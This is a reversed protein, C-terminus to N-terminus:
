TNYVRQLKIPAPNNSDRLSQPRRPTNDLAEKKNQEEIKPLTKELETSAPKSYVEVLKMLTALIQKNVGLNDVHVSHSAVLTDTVVSIESVPPSYTTQNTSTLMFGPQIVTEAQSVQSSNKTKIAKDIEAESAFQKPVNTIQKALPAIPTLTAATQEPETTTQTPTPVSAKDASDNARLNVTSGIGLHTRTDTSPRTPTAPAFVATQPVAMSATAAPKSTDATMTTPAKGGLKGVINAMHRDTSSLLEGLTLWSGDKKTFFPKNSNNINSSNLFTNVKLDLKQDNINKLLRSSSDWDLMHLIYDLGPTKKLGPALKDIRKQTEAAYAQGFAFNIKNDHLNIEHPKKTTDIGYSELLAKQNRMLGAVNSPLIQYLGIPRNYMIDARKESDNKENLNGLSSEIFAKAKLSSADLGHKESEEDILAAVAKQKDNLVFQKSSDNEYRASAESVGPKTINGGLTISSDQYGINAKSQEAGKDIQDVVKKSDIINNRVTSETSSDMFRSAVKWSRTAPKMEYPTISALGGGGKGLGNRIENIIAAPNNTAMDRVKDVNNDSMLPQIGAPEIHWPEGQIPRTFGYKRMLGLKDLKNADASSIDAALGVMHLSRKAGKLETNEAETRFGNNMNIKKGTYQYYESVMAFLNKQFEPNLRTINTEPRGAKLIIATRGQNQLNPDNRFEYGDGYAKNVSYNGSDKESKDTDVPAIEEERDDGVGGSTANYENRYKQSFAIEDLRRKAQEQKERLRDKVSQQEQQRKNLSANKIDELSKSQQNLKYYDVLDFKGLAKKKRLSNITYEILDKVHELTNECSPKTPFPSSTATYPGNAYTMDRLISQMVADEAKFVDDPNDIKNKLLLTHFNLFFPKFRNVFWSIFNNVESDSNQNIEMLTLLDKTPLNTFTVTNNKTEIFNNNVIWQELKHLKDFYQNDQGNEVFGYQAFRVKWLDSDKKWKKYGYVAGGIVAAGVLAPVLIPSSVIGGIISATGSVLGTLSVGTLAGLIARTVGITKAVKSGGSAAALAGRAAGAAGSMRSFIGAGAKGTTKGIGILSKGAGFIGGMIKSGAYMGLATKAADWKWDSAEEASANPNLAQMAGGMSGFATAAIAAAPAIFKIARFLVGLSGFGGLLGSFFGGEDKSEKEEKKGLGFITSLLGRKKQADRIEKSQKSMDEANGDRDGDGDKDNFAAKKGFLNLGPIHSLFRGLLGGDKKKKNEEKLVKAEEKIKEKLEEDVSKVANDFINIKKKNLELQSKKREELEKNYLGNISQDLGLAKRQDPLLEVWDDDKPKEKLSKIGSIAEAEKKLDDIDKEIEQKRRRITEAKDVTPETTSKINDVNVTAASDKKITEEAKPSEEPPTASEIKPKGLGKLWDSARSFVGKVARTTHLDSLAKGAVKGHEKKKDHEEKHKKFLKLINKYSGSIWMGKKAGLKIAHEPAVYWLNKDDKSRLIVIFFGDKDGHERSSTGTSELSTSDVNDKQELNYTDTRLEPKGQTFEEILGKTGDILSEGLNVGKVARGRMRKYQRRFFGDGEKIENDTNKFAELQEASFEKVKALKEEYQKKALAKGEDSLNKYWETNTVKNEWADRIGRSVEEVNLAHKADKAEMNKEDVDSRMPIKRNGKRLLDRIDLLVNYIPRSGMGGGLGIGMDGLARSIVGAGAHITKGLFNDGKWTNKLFDATHEGLNSAVDWARGVGKKAYAWAKSGYLEVKKRSEDYLRGLYDGATIRINSGKVIITGKLDSLKKVVEQTDERIYQGAQLLEKYFVVEGKENLLNTRFKIANVVKDKAKTAKDAMWNLATPIKNTVLDQTIDKAKGIGEWALEGAKKIGKKLPEKLSEALKIANNYLPIVVNDKAVRLTTITGKVAASGAMTTLDFTGGVVQKISKAFGKGSDKFDIGAQNLSVASATSTVRGQHAMVALLKNSRKINALIAENINVSKGDEKINVSVEKNLLESLTINTKNVGGIIAENYAFLNRFLLNFAGDFKENLEKIAAMNLGNASVLDVTTGGPALKNGGVKQMDQAMPGVHDVNPDNASRNPNYNWIKSELSSVTNLPSSGNPSTNSANYGTFKNGYDISRINRKKGVDSETIGLDNIQKTLEDLTISNKGTNKLISNVQQKQDETVSPHNIKKVLEKIRTKDKKDKKVLKDQITEVNHKLPTTSSTTTTPTVLGADAVASAAPSVTPSVTTTEATAQTATKDAEQKAAMKAAYAQKNKESSLDHITGTIRDIEDTLVNLPVGRRGKLNGKQNFWDVFQKKQLEGNLRYVQERIDRAHDYGKRLSKFWGSEKKPIAIISPLQKIIEELQKDLRVENFNTTRHTNTLQKDKSGGAAINLRQMHERIDFTVDNNEDNRSAMKRAELIEVVNDEGYEYILDQLQAMPLNIRNKASIITDMLKSESGRDEKFQKLRSEYIDKFKQGATSLAGSDRIGQMSNSGANGLVSNNIDLMFQQYEEPTKKLQELQDKGFSGGGLFEIAVEEAGQAYSSESSENIKSIKNYIKTKHDLKSIFRGGKFDYELKKDLFSVEKSLNSQEDLTFGKTNAYQLEFVMRSLYGPIIDNITRYTRNDFVAPEKLDAVGGRKTQLTTDITKADTFEKAVKELQTLGIKQITGDKSNDERLDRVYESNLFDLIGSRPDKAKSIAQALRDQFKKHKDLSEKGHEAALNATVDFLKSIIMGAIQGTMGNSSGIGMKAMEEESEVSSQLMELLTASSEIGSKIDTVTNALKKGIRDFGQKIFDGPATFLSSNSLNDYFKNRMTDKFKESAKIKVFEPLATNKVIAESNVKSLENARIQDKYQDVQLFYARYQLELSKRQYAQQITSNYSEIKSINTSISTMVDINADFRKSEIHDKIQEKSEDYARQRVRIEEQASAQATFIGGLVSEIQQNEAEEKSTSVTSFQEGNFIKDVGETLKKVFPTNQPVLKNIKKTLAGVSPKLEKVSDDYLKRTGSAVKDVADTIYVADPPLAKLVKQKIFEPSTVQDKVAAGAGRVAKMVPNRSSTNSIDPSTSQEIDSSVSDFNFEDSDFNYEDNETTTIARKRSFLGM